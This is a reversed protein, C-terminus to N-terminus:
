KFIAKIPMHDSLELWNELKGIELYQLRSIWRESAFVYDIHYPKEKKRQFYLTPHTERGQDEQAFLHYLSEIGIANLESIVNSHNWWRDWKDWIVNSNFDGVIISDQLKDKNLQLYKWFQGIYGFADSNNKHTWVALLPFSNNVLCPLFYKVEHEPISFKMHGAFINTWNLKQLRINEKAFIGLGKNKNDGIWLHNSTWENYESNKTTRPNECEQIVYIDADLEQIFQFKNRFAGSCNWSVIKM